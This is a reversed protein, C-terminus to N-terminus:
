QNGFVVIGVKTSNYGANCATLTSTQIRVTGAALDTRCVWDVPTGTNQIQVLCVYNTADLDGGLTVVVDGTDCAVSTVNFGTNVAPSAGMTINAWAKPINSPTLKNTYSTSSTVNAASDMDVYGSTIKIADGGSGGGAGATVEIGNGGITTGAGGQFTAGPGGTAGSGGTVIAGTGGTGGDTVGAAAISAGNGGYNTNATAYIAYGGRGGTTDGQGGLAVLGGLGKAGAVAYVGYSGTGGGTGGTGQLGIGNAVGTASTSVAFAAASNTITLRDTGNTCVALSDAGVRYLGTNTDGSFTLGPATVSGSALQLPATMAGRGGRDLSNTIETSIDSLTGNAWTSTITTGTVVPNPVSGTNPLSYTGSGNRAANAPAMFSLAVGLCLGVVLGVWSAARANLKAPQPATNQKDSSTTM